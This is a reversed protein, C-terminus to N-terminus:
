EARKRVQGQCRSSVRKRMLRLFILGFGSCFRVKGDYTDEVCKGLVDRVEM